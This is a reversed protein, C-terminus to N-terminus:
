ITHTRTTETNKGYLHINIVPVQRPASPVLQTRRKPFLHLEFVSTCINVPRRFVRVCRSFVGVKLDTYHFINASNAEKM